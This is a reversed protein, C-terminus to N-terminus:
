AGAMRERLPLPADPPVIQALHAVVAALDLPKAFVGQQGVDIIHPSAADMFFLIPQPIAPLARLRQAFTLGTMDVLDRGVLVLQPTHILALTLGAAGRVDRLVQYGSHELGSTLSARVHADSDLILVLTM